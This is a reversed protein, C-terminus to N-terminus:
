SKQGLIARIKSGLLDELIDSFAEVELAYLEGNIGGTKALWKANKTEMNKEPPRVKKLEVIEPDINDPIVFDFVEFKRLKNLRLDDLFANQISHGSPDYDVLPFLYFKQRLDIQHSRLDDVFYEAELQSPQGGLFVTTVDYQAHLKKLFVAWGEKEAFVIIRHNKGIKRSDKGQDAFGIDQYRMMQKDQVLRVFATILANYASEGPVGLRATPVKIYEYYFARINKEFPPSEGSQILKRQQWIVNRCYMSLNIPFEDARYSFKEILWAEPQEHILEKIHFLIQEDKLKRQITKSFLLVPIFFLFCIFQLIYKVRYRVSSYKKM